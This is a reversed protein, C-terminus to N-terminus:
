GRYLGEKLWPWDMKALKAFYQGKFCQLAGLFCSMCWDYHEYEFTRIESGDRPIQIGVMGLDKINHMEEYCHKYAAMQWGAKVDYRGTKIDMVSMKKNYEGLLDLQGAVGLTESYVYVESEFPTVKTRKLEKWNAFAQAIEPDIKHVKGKIDAEVAAHIKTGLNAANKVATKVKNQSNRIFWSKLKEHVVCSLVLTVSLYKKGDREYWRWGDEDEYRVIKKEKDGCLPLQQEM